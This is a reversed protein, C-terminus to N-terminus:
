ARGIERGGVRWFSRAVKPGGEHGETRRCIWWRDGDVDIVVRSHTQDAGVVSAWKSSEAFHLLLTTAESLEVLVLADLEVGEKM